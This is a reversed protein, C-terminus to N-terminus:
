SARTTRPATVTIGPEVTVQCTDAEVTVAATKHAHTLGVRINQGGIMIAGRVSVRRTVTLLVPSASAERTLEPGM